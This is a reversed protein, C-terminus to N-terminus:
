IVEIPPCETQIVVIEFFLKCLNTLNVVIPAKGGSM